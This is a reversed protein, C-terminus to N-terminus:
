RKTPYTVVVLGAAIRTEQRRNPETIHLTNMLLRGPGAVSVGLTLAPPDTGAQWIDLELVDDAKSRDGEDRYGTWQIVRGATFSLEIKASQGQSHVSDRQARCIPFAAKHLIRKDLRVELTMMPGGCTSFWFWAPGEKTAQSQLLIAIVIAAHTM